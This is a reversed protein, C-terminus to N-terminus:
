IFTKTKNKLMKLKMTQDNWQETQTKRQQPEEVKVLSEPQVQLPATPTQEEKASPLAPVKVTYNIVRQKFEEIHM